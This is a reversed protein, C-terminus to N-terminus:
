KCLNIYQIFADENPKLRTNKLCWDQYKANYQKIIQDREPNNGIIKKHCDEALLQIKRKIIRKASM